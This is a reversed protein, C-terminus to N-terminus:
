ATSEDCNLSDQTADLQLRSAVFLIALSVSSEGTSRFEVQVASPLRGEHTSTSPSSDTDVVRAPPPARAVRASCIEEIIKRTGFHNQDTIM